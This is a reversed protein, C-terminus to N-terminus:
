GGWTHSTMQSHEGLVLRMKNKEPRARTGSASRTVTGLSAFDESNKSELLFMM